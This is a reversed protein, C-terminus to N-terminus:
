GGVGKEQIAKLKLLQNIRDTEGFLKLGKLVIDTTDPRRLIQDNSVGALAKHFLDKDVPSKALGYLLLANLLEINESKRDLMQPILDEMGAYDNAAMYAVALNELVRKDDLSWDKRLTAIAEPLKHNMLSITGVGFLANRNKPWYKLVQRYIADANTYDRLLFYADGVATLKDNPWVNPDANYSDTIKSCLIQLTKNTEDIAKLRNAVEDFVRATEANTVIDRGGVGELSVVILNEDPPDKVLAYALLCDVIDLRHQKNQLLPALLREMQDYKKTLLCCYALPELSDIDGLSWSEALLKISADYDGELYMISGLGRLARPQNPHEELYRLYVPKAKNYNSEVAYGIAVALLRDDILNTPSSEYDAILKQRIEPFFVVRDFLSSDQADVFSASLTVGLLLILTLSAFWKMYVEFPYNSNATADLTSV